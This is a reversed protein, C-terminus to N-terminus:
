NESPREIHDVVITDVPGRTSELKLGLQEQIATFISPGSSENSVASEPAHAGDEPGRPLVAQDEDPTWHLTIDFAGKRGTKDLVHRGVQLSLADALASMPLDNLRLEGALTRSGFRSSPTSKSIKPGNKAVVLEYLPLNKTDHSVRLNFRDTLLSQFMLKAQQDQPDGRFDAIKADINYSESNIWSPGGSLQDDKIGYAFEIIAKATFNAVAVRGSPLIQFFSRSDASRNPKLSAVEFSPLPATTARPSQAPILRANMFVFAILMPIAVLGGASKSRKRIFNLKRAMRETMIQVTVNKPLPVEAICVGHIKYLLGCVLRQGDWIMVTFDQSPYPKDFNIFTPKGKSGAATHVGTVKGCVTTTEGVHGNAEAAPIDQV